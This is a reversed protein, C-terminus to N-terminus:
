VKLDIISRYDKTDSNFFSVTQESVDLVHKNRSPGSLIVKLETKEGKYTDKM